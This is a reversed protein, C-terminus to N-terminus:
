PFFLDIVVWNYCFLSGFIFFKSTKIQCLLTLFLYLFYLFGTNSVSFISEYNCRESAITGFSMLIGVLYVLLSVYFFDSVTVVMIQESVLFNFKFKCINCLYQRYFIHFSIERFTQFVGCFIVTFVM